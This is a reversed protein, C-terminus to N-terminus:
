FDVEYGSPLMACYATGLRGSYTCFGVDFFHMKRLLLDVDFSRMCSISSIPTAGEPLLAAKNEQMALSAQQLSQGSAKGCFFLVDHGEASLEDQASAARHWIAFRVANRTDSGSAQSVTFAAAAAESLSSYFANKIAIQRIHAAQLPGFRYDPKQSSLFAASSVLAFLFVSSLVFSLFGKRTGFGM